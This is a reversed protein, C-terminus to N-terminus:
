TSKKVGFGTIYNKSSKTPLITINNYYLIM